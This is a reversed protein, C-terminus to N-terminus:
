SSSTRPASNVCGAQASRAWSTSTPASLPSHEVNKDEGLGTNSLVVPIGSDVAAKITENLVDPYTDAIVLGDPKAAIANELM